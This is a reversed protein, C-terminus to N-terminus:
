TEFIIKCHDRTSEYAEQLKSEVCEAPRSTFQSSGGTSCKQNSRMTNEYSRPISHVVSGLSSNEINSASDTARFNQQRNNIKYASPTIQPYECVTRGIIYDLTRVIKGM